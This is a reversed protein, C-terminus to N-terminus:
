RCLSGLWLSLPHQRDLAGYRKLAELTVLQADHMMTQSLMTEIIQSVDMLEFGAVEGDQNEPRVTEPLVIDFIHLIENHIGRSVPRLSHIRPAARLNGLAPPMLGAEEESERCVAEFPTEGSAIGGGVLNDLKGPDVAKHPSRRGIWFRLGDEIEVLGNLHVAQSMLGFPRFAARELACLPKGSQDCIDFKEGRWGKLWGCERWQQALTQLSDGMEPWSDTELNLGDSLTSQSGTWDQGLRERWLPNLRGLPLGNLYLICWDDSAGYSTQAWDWLADHVDSAFVQEFRFSQSM